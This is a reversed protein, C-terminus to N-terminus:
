GSSSMSTNEPQELARVGAQLSDPSLHAYRMTIQITKHGMWQKIVAIHVGRQALRSACTHRLCYPVFQSDDKLGLHVKMRDWQNRYWGDSYPFPRITNKTRRELLERVRLTMPISRSAGNKTEWFTIMGSTFDTDTSKLKYAESPRCGTDVLFVTFDKHDNKDWLEITTLIAKEEEVTIWRLRGVGESKRELHPKKDLAGREIAFSMVKSLCAIKRNITADANGNEECDAIWRDVWDTDIDSLMTKKGFFGLMMRANKMTSKEAPTGKWVLLHCKEVAQELTWKKSLKGAVEKKLEELLDAEMRLAAVEDPAQRQKRHGEFTVDVQYADGRKRIPM